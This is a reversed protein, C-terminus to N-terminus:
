RDDLKFLLKLNKLAMIWFIYIACLSFFILPSRFIKYLRKKNPTLTHFVSISIVTSSQDDTFSRGLKKHHTNHYQKFQKAISVVLPELINALLRNYNKAPHNKFFCNHCCDHSIIFLRVTFGAVLLCALGDIKCLIIAICLGFLSTIIDVLPKINNSQNNIMYKRLHNKINAMESTSYSNM